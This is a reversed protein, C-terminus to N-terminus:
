RPAIFRHWELGDPLSPTGSFEFHLVRRHQTTSESSRGSCHSVLPRVALVDGAAALITEHRGDLSVAKGTLHSGAVVRLPGNEETAADLHLRLSLMNELVEVPPEIHAVGAKARVRYGASKAVDANRIAITIDKHWPLVWSQGPPKDFYLVRTLGFEHGLVETLLDILRPRQWIEAAVPFFDLVNRAAYEKGAAHRIADNSNRHRTLAAHLQECLDEVERRAYVAGLIAFGDREIQEVTDAM